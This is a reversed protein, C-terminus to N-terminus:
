KEDYCVYFMRITYFLTEEAPKQTTFFDRLDQLFHVNGRGTQPQIKRVAWCHDREVDIPNM